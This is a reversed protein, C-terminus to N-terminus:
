AICYAVEAQSLPIHTLDHVYAFYELGFLSMISIKVEKAKKNEM